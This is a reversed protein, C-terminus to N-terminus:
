INKKWIRSKKAILGPNKSFFLFFPHWIKFLILHANCMTCVRGKNNFKVLNPKEEFKWLCGFTLRFFRRFWLFYSWDSFSRPWDKFLGASLGPSFTVKKACGFGSNCLCWSMGICKSFLKSSSIESLSFSDCKTM